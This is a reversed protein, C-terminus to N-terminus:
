STGLTYHNAVTAASLVTSYVAVEDLLGSYYSGNSQARALSIISSATLSGTNNPTGSVVLTGDIYLQMAPVVKTRTFVVHHWANDNYTLPSVISVDATNGVGGIVKGACLSVGFDSNAGSVEADVLRMGQWWQTCTTGAVQSSKFWFEVSFDDSVQRAVSAYENVGDLQVAANPDGVVAGSVGLAPANFYTGNNTGKDDVVTTGSAEGLRWHGLLGATAHLVADYSLAARVINAGTATALNGVNDAVVYQYKYCSGGTVTDVLPSTPNTGNTVTAFAGYTGCTTGTVPASARQLLRTGVGSAADTGTTFSVSVTTGSTSGDAYTVTGAMPAPDDATM